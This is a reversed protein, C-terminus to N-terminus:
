MENKKEKEFYNYGVWSIEKSGDPGVKAIWGNYETAGFIVNDDNDVRAYITLNSQKAITECREIVERANM